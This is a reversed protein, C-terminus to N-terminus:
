VLQTLDRSHFLRVLNLASDLPKHFSLDICGPRLARSITSLIEVLHDDSFSWPYVQIGAWQLLTAVGRKKWLAGQFQSSLYPTTPM